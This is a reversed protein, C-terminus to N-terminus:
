RILYTEYVEKEMEVTKLAWLGQMALTSGRLKVTSAMLPYPRAQVVEFSIWGVFVM